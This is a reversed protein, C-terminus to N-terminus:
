SGFMPEAEVKASTELTNFYQDLDKAPRKLRPSKKPGSRAAALTRENHWLPEDLDVWQRCIKGDAATPIALFEAVMVDIVILQALKRTVFRTQRPSEFRSM